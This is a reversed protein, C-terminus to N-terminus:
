LIEECDTTYVTFLFIQEVTRIPQDGDSNDKIKEQLPSIKNKFFSDAILAKEAKAMIEDIVDDVGEYAKHVINLTIVFERRFGSSITAPDINCSSIEVISCPLQKEFLTGMVPDFARISQAELVDKVKNRIQTRIHM